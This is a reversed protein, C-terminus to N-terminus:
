SAAIVIMGHGGSQYCFYFIVCKTLNHPPQSNLRWIHKTQCKFYIDPFKNQLNNFEKKKNM